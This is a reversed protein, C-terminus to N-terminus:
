RTKVMEPSRGACQVPPKWRAGSDTAPFDRGGIRRLGSASELHTAPSIQQFSSLVVQLLTYRKLVKVNLQAIRWLRGPYVRGCLVDAGVGLGDADVRALVFVTQALLSCRGRPGGLGEQHRFGAASISPPCIPWALRAVSYTLRLMPAPPIQM